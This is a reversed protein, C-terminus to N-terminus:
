FGCHQHRRIRQLMWFRTIRIIFVQVFKPSWVKEKWIKFSLCWPCFPNGVLTKLIVFQAKLVANHLWLGIKPKMKLHNYTSLEMIMWCISWCLVLPNRRVFLNFFNNEMSFTWSWEIQIHVWAVNNSLFSYNSCRLIALIKIEFM